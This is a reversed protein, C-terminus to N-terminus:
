KPATSSNRGARRAEEERARYCQSCLIHFGGPVQVSGEAWDGGSHAQLHAECVECWANRLDDSHQAEYSVFADAEGASLAVIHKCVYAAPQIGHLPCECTETM